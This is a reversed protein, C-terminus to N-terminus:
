LGDGDRDLVHLLGVRAPSEGVVLASVHVVVDDGGEDLGHASAIGVGGDVPEGTPSLVRGLVEDGVPVDLVRGTRNVQGGIFVEGELVAAGISDESIELAIAEAGDAMLLKEGYKVNGLGKVHIVGDGASVINGYEYLDSGFGYSQVRNALINQINNEVNKLDKERSLGIRMADLRNKFSMDYAIGDIHATFGGVLNKDEVYEFDIKRNLLKEFRQKIEELQKEDFGSYWLTDKM